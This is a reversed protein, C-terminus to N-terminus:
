HSADSASSAAVSSVGSVGGSRTAGISPQGIIEAQLAAENIFFQEEVAIAEMVSNVQKRADSLLDFVGILMGNYRLLMEDSITKRLPIVEDRYNKAVLYASRYASYRERLHASAARATADLQNALALTQANMASRQADGLDFLPLRISIEGGRGTNSSGAARDVVANRKVGLEIDTLSTLTTLGQAKASANFRAEAIRVDLRDRRALLSLDEPARLTKPLEPLREPLKLQPAEADTLGLLRVLAERRALAQHAAQQHQTVADTLFVQQQSRALQSFNGAKQMKVALADSAEALSLVQGSYALRQQAAVAAVWAQRVDTVRQVVDATLQLQAVNIEQKAMELRQPLTLLDLLGFSLTREIDVEGTYRLRSFSFLPNSLRAGQDARATAAWSQALLAQLAPSHVLALHVAEHQTLPKKLLESTLQQADNKEEPTTLLRLQGQTFDPAAQNTKALTSEFSVQACGSLGLFALGALLSFKVQNTALPNLLFKIIQNKFHTQCFM